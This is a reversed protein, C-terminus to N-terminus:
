KVGLGPLVFLTGSQWPDRMEFCQCRPRLTQSESVVTEEPTTSFFFTLRGHLDM